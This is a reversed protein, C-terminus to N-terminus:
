EACNPNAPNDAGSLCALFVAFDNQDVDEDGDLIADRCNQDSQVEGSGSYCAQFHGFDDQDVDGDGDFDGPVTQVAIVVTAEDIMGENDTVSLRCTYTGAVAYQHSTTPSTGSEDYTGDDTFDWEYSVIQPPEGYSDNDYSGSADFAVTLPVFGEAPSPTTSIVAVPSHPSIVVHLTWDNADPKTFSVTGGGQRQFTPNFQGNQPNYFRCDFVGRDASMDLTFTTSAGIKSYVVYERGPDALCYTGLSGLENHPALTDLDVVQENFFRSAHGLWDRKYMGKDGGAVNPDYGMIGTVVTEQREDAHFFFHGGGVTFTWIATRVGSDMYPEGELFCYPRSPTGTFGSVANSNKDDGGFTGSMVWDISSRRANWDMWVQGRSRFFDRFHDGMNGESYSHEDMFVFFVNGFPATDDILKKAYREWVWQAKKRSSWTDSWAETWVETGPSEIMQVETVPDGGDTVPGGNVVNLPHYSWDPRSINNHKPWGFFVTIGVVVDKGAAYGCLDRLRPWYHTSDGAPGEDFAQMDWQKLQDTADAGSTKRAWPTVGPYVYGYRAEIVSGDQKQRPALFAWVHVARIRRAACDDIWERHNINTNQMVVQTGSDGVLLLPEGKYTIYHGGPSTGVLGLGLFWSLAHHRDTTHESSPYTTFRDTKVRTFGQSAYWALAETTGYVPDNAGTFIYAPMHRAAPPLPSPTEEVNFNGHRASLARFVGPHRLGVYHAVHGGGSFGTMLMRHVDVNYTGQIESIIRMVANDDTALQDLQGAALQNDPNGYAGTMDPCAVIVDNAEALTPWTPTGRDCCSNPGTADMETDGNQATGHSSIVLPYARQEDYDTPVYLIYRRGTVAEVCTQRGTPVAAATAALACIVAQVALNGALLTPARNFAPLVCILRRLPCM